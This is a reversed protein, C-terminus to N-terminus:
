EIVTLVPAGAADHEEKVIVTKITEPELATNVKMIVIRGVSINNEAVPFYCRGCVTEVDAAKLAAKLGAPTTDGETAELAALIYQMTAYGTGAFVGPKTGHKAEYAAVFDSNGETDLLYTYLTGAVCDKADPLDALAKPDATLGGDEPQIM